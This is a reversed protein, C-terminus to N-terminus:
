SLVVKLCKSTELKPWKFSMFKRQKKSKAVDTDYFVTRSNYSVDFPLAVGVKIITCPSNEPKGSLRIAYFANPNYKMTMDALVM